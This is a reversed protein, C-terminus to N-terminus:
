SGTRWLLGGGGTVKSQLWHLLFNGLIGINPNYISNKKYRYENSEAVVFVRLQSGFEM